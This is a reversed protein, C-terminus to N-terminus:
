GSSTEAEALLDTLDDHGQERAFDQATKGGDTKADPRAGADLLLRVVESRGNAAAVHLATVGEHSRADADAGAELLVEVAEPQGGAAAAQLPQNKTSNESVARHSAGEALLARVVDTRGFHAALHLPTWGDFSTRGLLARNGRVLARVRDKLGLVAAEFVDPQAGREQLLDCLDWKRYYAAWMLASAGEANRAAALGPDTDLLRELADRDGAEIAQFLRAKLDEDERKPDM